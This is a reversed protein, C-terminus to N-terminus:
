RGAGTGGQAEGGPDIGLRASAWARVSPHLLPLLAGAILGTALAVGMWHAEALSSGFYSFTWARVAAGLGVAGLFVTFRIGTLAAAAHYATTPGFPYGTGLALLGAGTRRGAVDLVRQLRSPVRARVAEAGLGRALGFALSASLLLGLCGVVTGQVTGFCLGAATLVLQSPLMLPTRLGILLVFGAPGWLGMRDVLARLSDVNWSIGLAHHAAVGLGAAALLIGLAGLRARRQRRTDM